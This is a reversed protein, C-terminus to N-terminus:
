EVGGEENPDQSPTEQFYMSSMLLDDLLAQIETLSLDNSYKTISHRQLGIPSSVEILLKTYPKSKEQSM